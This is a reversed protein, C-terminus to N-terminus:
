KWTKEGNGNKRCLMIVDVEDGKGGATTVFFVKPFAKM